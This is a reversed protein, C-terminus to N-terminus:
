KLGRSSVIELKSSTIMSFEIELSDNKKSYLFVQVNFPREIRDAGDQVVCRYVGADDTTSGAVEYRLRDDEM